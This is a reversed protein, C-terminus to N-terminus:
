ERNTDFLNDNLLHNELYFYKKAKKHKVYHKLEYFQNFTVALNNQMGSSKLISNEWNSKIYDIIKQEYDNYIYKFCEPTSINLRDEIEIEKKFSYRMWPTQVFGWGNRVAFSGMRNGITHDNLITKLINEFKRENFILDTRLLIIYDYDEKINKFALGKSIIQSFLHYFMDKDIMSWVKKWIFEVADYSHLKYTSGSIIKKFKDEELPIYTQKIKPRSRNKNYSDWLSYHRDVKIDKSQLYEFLANHSYISEEVMRPQGFYLFLIKVSEM